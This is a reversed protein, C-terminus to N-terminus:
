YTHIIIDDSIGPSSKQFEYLLPEEGAANISFIYDGDKLHSLRLQLLLGKFSGKRYVQQNMGTITYEFLVNDLLRNKIKIFMFEHVLSTIQVTSPELLPMSILHNFSILNCM